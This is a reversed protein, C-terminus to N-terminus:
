PYHLMNDEIRNRDLETRKIKGGVYSTNPYVSYM